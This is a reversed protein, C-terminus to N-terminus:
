GAVLIQYEKCIGRIEANKFPSNSTASKPFRYKLSMERLKVFSADILHTSFPVNRVYDYPAVPTTNESYTGDPNEIVSNPVVFYDRDGILTTLATGNFEVLDKTYSLFQGGQRFDFLVDFSFGRWSFTNSISAIYDPQYSGLYELEDSLLPLGTADVVVQGADNTKVM